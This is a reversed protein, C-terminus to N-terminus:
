HKNTSHIYCAFVSDTNILRKQVFARVLHWIIEREICLNHGTRGVADSIESLKVLKNSVILLLYLYNTDKWYFSNM